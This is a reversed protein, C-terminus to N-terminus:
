VKLYIRRRDLVEAVAIGLLCMMGSWTFAAATEGVVGALPWVVAGRVPGIVYHLSTFVVFITIPNRGLAVFPRVVARWDRLEAMWWFVGLYLCSAAHSIITFSPTWLHKNVPIAPVLLLGVALSGLTWLWIRRLADTPERRRLTRMVIAGGLVNATASIATAPGETAPHGILMRDIWAAFNTHREWSGQVVGDFSAWTFGAWMVGLIGLAVPLHFRDPLRMVLWALVYAIAIKQLIGTVQFTWAFNKLAMLGVGFAFLLVARRAVSRASTARSSFAMAAGMAFLFAPFFTDSFTLGDWEAHDLHYPRASRIGAFNVVLLMVLSLGRHADLAVVRRKVSDTPKSPATPGGVVAGPGPDRRARVKGIM